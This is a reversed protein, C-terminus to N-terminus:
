LTIEVALTALALTAILAIFVWKLMRRLGPDDQASPQGPDTMSRFFSRAFSLRTPATQLRRRASGPLDPHHTPCLVRIDNRGSSDAERSAAITAEDSSAITLLSKFPTMVEQFAAASRINPQVAASAIPLGIVMMM